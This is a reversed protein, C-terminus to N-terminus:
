GDKPGDQDSPLHTHASDASADANKMRDLEDLTLMHEESLESFERLTPLEALSKLGFLRLFADSTGYVLPRGIDDARGLIRLLKLQLLNRLTSSSDVGRIEDVDARTCPQRYAVVALVEIGARGMKTPKRRMVPRLWPALEYATRFEWGGAVEALRVAHSHAAYRAQISELAQRVASAGREFAQASEVNALAESDDLLAVLERVSKPEDTSFLIGEIIAELGPSESM